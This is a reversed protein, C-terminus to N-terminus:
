SLMYLILQLHIFPTISGSKSTETILDCELHPCTSALKYRQYELRKIHLVNTCVRLRYALGIYLLTISFASSLINSHSWRFLKNEEGESGLTAM